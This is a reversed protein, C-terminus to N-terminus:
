GIEYPLTFGGTRALSGRLSEECFNAVFKVFEVFPFERFEHGRKQPQHLGNRQSRLFLRDPYYVDDYKRVRTSHGLRLKSCRWCDHRM